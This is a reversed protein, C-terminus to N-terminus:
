ASPLVLGHFGYVQSRNDRLEQRYFQLVEGLVAGGDNVVPRRWHNAVGLHRCFCTYETGFGQKQFDVEKENNSPFIMGNYCHEHRRQFHSEKSDTLQGM